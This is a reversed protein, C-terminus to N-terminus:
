SRALGHLALRIQDINPKIATGHGIGLPMVRKFVLLFDVSCPRERCIEDCFANVLRATPEVGQVCNRGHDKIGNRVLIHDAVSQNQVLIAQFHGLAQPVSDIRKFRQLLVARICGAPVHDAIRLRPIIQFKVGLADNLNLAFEESGEM